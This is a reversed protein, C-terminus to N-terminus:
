PRGLNHTFQTNSNRTYPSGRQCPEQKCDKTANRIHTTFAKTIGLGLKQITYLSPSPATYSYGFFQRNKTNKWIHDATKLIGLPCPQTTARCFMLKANPRSEPFTYNSSCKSNFLFNDFIPGWRGHPDIAFPILIMNQKLIDGIVADGQITSSSDNVDKKNICNFKRKEFKQLHADAFASVSSIVDDLFNFSSPTIASHGITIDAGITSYPCHIHIKDTPQDPDFSIDFPQSSTDRTKIRKRELDLKTHLESTDRLPLLLNFHTQGHTEPSITRLNKILSTATSPTIAGNIM